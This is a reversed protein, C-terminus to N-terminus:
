FQIQCQAGLNTPDCPYPEEIDAGRYKMGTMSTCIAATDNIPYALGSECYKGNHEYDAFM